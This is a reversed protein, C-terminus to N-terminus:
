HSVTLSLLVVSLLSLIRFGPLFPIWTMVTRTLLTSLSWILLVRSILLLVSELKCVCRLLTSSRKITMLSDYNLVLTLTCSMVVGYTMSSLTRRNFTREIDVSFRLCSLISSICLFCCSVNHFCVSHIGSLVLGHSSYAWLSM